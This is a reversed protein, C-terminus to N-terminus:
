DLQEVSEGLTTILRWDIPPHEKPAGDLAGTIGVVTVSLFGRRRM